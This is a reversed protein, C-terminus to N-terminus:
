LYETSAEIVGNAGAGPLTKVLQEVANKAKLLEAPNMAAVKELDVGYKQAIGQVVGALFPYKDMYDFLLDLLDDGEGDAEEEKAKRPAKPVPRKMEAWLALARFALLYLPLLLGLILTATSWDIIAM